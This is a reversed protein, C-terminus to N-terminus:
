EVERQFLDDDPRFRLEFVAHQPATPVRQQRVGEAEAVVFRAVQVREVALSDVDDEVRSEIEADILISISDDITAVRIQEVVVIGRRSVAERFHGEDIFIDVPVSHKIRAFVEVVVANQIPKRLAIDAVGIGVDVVDEQTIDALHPVLVAVDMLDDLRRVKYRADQAVRATRGVRVPILIHRRHCPAHPRM